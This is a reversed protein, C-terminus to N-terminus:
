QHWLASTLSRLGGGRYGPAKLPSSSCPLGRTLKTYALGDLAINEAKLAKVINTPHHTPYGAQLLQTDTHRHHHNSQLKRVNKYSWNDGGGVDDKDGIFDLISVNQYQRGPNNDHSSAM